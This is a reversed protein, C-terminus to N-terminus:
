PRKKHNLTIMESILRKQYHKEIDLIKPIEWNFDHYFEIRHETIISHLKKTLIKKHETIRTNLKRKTQGVYALRL